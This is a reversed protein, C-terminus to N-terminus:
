FQCPVGPDLRYGTDWRQLLAGLGLNRLASVAVYVRNRGAEPLPSEGPWGARLLEDVTVPAGPRHCRAEALALLLRRLPRRAGLEHRVGGPGQVWEADRGLLIRATSPPRSAALRGALGAGVARAVWASFGAADPLFDLLRWLNQAQALLVTMDPRQAPPAALIKLNSWVLLLALKADSALSRGSFVRRFVPPLRVLGAHARLFLVLAYVDAGPTPPAGSAVEPALCAGALPGAGFGVISLQGAASFLLNAPSWSGLCVPRGTEPDRARHVKSMAEMLTQGIVSAREFTPRDGGQAIVESLYELDVVADCDLAVWPTPADLAEHAVGPIPGGAVLRHVRALNGLVLRAEKLPLGPATVVVQLRKSEPDRASHLHLPGRCRIPVLSRYREV